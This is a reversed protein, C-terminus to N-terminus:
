IDSLTPSLRLLDDDRQGRSHWRLLSEGALTRSGRLLGTCGRDTPWSRCPKAASRDEAARGILGRAARILQSCTPQGRVRQCPCRDASSFPLSASKEFSHGDSRGSVPPAEESQPPCYSRLVSWLRPQSAAIRIKGRGCRAKQYTLCNSGGIGHITFSLVPQSATAMYRPLIRDFTLENNPDIPYQDANHEQQQQM